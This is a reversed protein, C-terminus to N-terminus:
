VHLNHKINSKKENTYLILQYTRTYLIQLTM